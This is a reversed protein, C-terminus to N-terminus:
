PLICLAPTHICPLLRVGCLKELVWCTSSKAKNALFLSSFLKELKKEGRWLGKQIKLATNKLTPLPFPDSSSHLLAEGEPVAQSLGMPYPSSPATLCLNPASAWFPELFHKYKEVPLSSLCAKKMGEPCSQMSELAPTQLALTLSSLFVTRPSSGAVAGHIEGSRGAAWFHGSANRWAEGPPSVPLRPCGAM